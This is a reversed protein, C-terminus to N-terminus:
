LQGQVTRRCNEAGCNCQMSWTAVSIPAYDTTIEEDAAIDRAAALTKADIPTLNPDCSHNGYRVPDDEAQLLHRGHGLACVSYPEQLNRLQADDIERGGIRVVVEGEAIPERTVLGNGHIPSARVEIAPHVWSRKSPKERADPL